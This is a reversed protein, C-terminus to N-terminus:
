KLKEKFVKAKLKDFIKILFKIVILIANVKWKHEGGGQGLPDIPGNEFYNLFIYAKPRTQPFVENPRVNLSLCYAKQTESM